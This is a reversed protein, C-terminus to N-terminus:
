RCSSFASTRSSRASPHPKRTWCRPPLPSKSRSPATGPELVIRITATQDVQLNIGTLVKKSFGAVEAALQYDGLPMFPANFDGNENTTVIRQLGTGSNTLTVKASPIVAETSDVVVGRINGTAVQAIARIPLAALAAAMCFAVLFGISCDRRASPTAGDHAFFQSTM